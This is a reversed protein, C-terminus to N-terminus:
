KLCERMIQEHTLYLSMTKSQVESVGNKMYWNFIDLNKNYVREQSLDYRDALMDLYNFVKNDRVSNELEESYYHLEERVVDELKEKKM